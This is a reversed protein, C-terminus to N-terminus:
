DRPMFMSLYAQSSARHRCISEESAVDNSAELSSCAIGDLGSCASAPM